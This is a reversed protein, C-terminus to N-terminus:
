RRPDAPPRALSIVIHTHPWHQIVVEDGVQLEARTIANVEFLKRNVLMYDVRGVFLYRAKTWLREVQGRTEKPTARLDRLANVAEIAAPIGGLTLITVAVFSSPLFTISFALLGLMVAAVPTLLLARMVVATRSNDRQELVNPDLM